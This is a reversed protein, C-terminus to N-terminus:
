LKSIICELQQRRSFKVLMENKLKVTLLSFLADVKVFQLM